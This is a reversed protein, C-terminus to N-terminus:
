HVQHYHDVNCVLQIVVQQHQSNSFERDNKPTGIILSSWYSSLLSLYPLLFNVEIFSFSEEDNEVRRDSSVSRLTNKGFSHPSTQFSIMLLVSVSTKYGFSKVNGQWRPVFSFCCFLKLNVSHKNGFCPWKFFLTTYEGDQWLMEM